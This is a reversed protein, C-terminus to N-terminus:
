AAAEHPAHVGPHYTSWRRLRRGPVLPTGCVPCLNPLEKGINHYHEQWTLFSPTEPIPQGLVMRAKKLLEANHEAYLGYYRVMKKRPPPVHRLVRLLFEEHPLQLVKNTKDHHDLYRFSVVGSGSSLINSESIPGGCIYRALSDDRILQLV